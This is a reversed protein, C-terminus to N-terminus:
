RPRTTTAITKMPKAVITTAAAKYSRSDIRLRSYQQRIPTGADM